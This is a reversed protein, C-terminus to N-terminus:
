VCAHIGMCVMCEHVRTYAHMSIYVYMVVCACEHACTYVCTCEHGCLAYIAMCVCAYMHMYVYVRHVHISMYVCTSEHLTYVYVCAYVSICVCAHVSMYM